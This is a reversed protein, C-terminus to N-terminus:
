ENEIGVVNKPGLVVLMVLMGPGLMIRIKMIPMGVKEAPIEIKELFVDGPPLNDQRGDCEINGRDPDGFRGQDQEPDNRRKQRGELQKIETGVQWVSALMVIAVIGSRLAFVM